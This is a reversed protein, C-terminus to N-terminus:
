NRPEVIVEFGNTPMVITVKPTVTCDPSKRLRFRQLIRTTLAKAELYAMARGLCTQPGLHFPVFAPSSLSNKNEWREPIFEEANEWYKESRGMFFASYAVVGTAKVKTGDPLTDDKVARRFDFPVPPYLRLTEDHVYQLYDMDKNKFDEITPERDGVVKDIIEILKAEKEENQSLLFFTWSLLCATTDRGAIFFNMVVDKLYEDSFPKGTQEDTLCMFRSLLDTRDKYDGAEKRKKIIDYIFTDMTKIDADYQKDPLYKLYPRRANSTVIEQTRNFAESFPVPKRLSNISFGFGIHGISDLTFRFFLDQIDITKNNDAAEQLIETVVEANKLFYPLMAGISNKTFLPRATKRHAKWHAGNSLFIGNGFLKQFRPINTGRQYNDFNDRLFYQVNAPDTTFAVSAVKLSSLCDPVLSYTPGYQLL